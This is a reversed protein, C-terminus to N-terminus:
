RKVLTLVLGVVGGIALIAVLATNIAGARWFWDPSTVRSFTPTNIGWLLSPMRGDRYGHLTKVAGAAALGFLVLAVLISM